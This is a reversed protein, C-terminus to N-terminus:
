EQPRAPAPQAASVDLALLRAANGGLIAELDDKRLGCAGLAERQETRRDHRWGAPFASSGTAFLVREPGFVGLVREFVDALTQPRPQTRLWDDLSATDVRVNDCQAGAMLAERLFGGGLGSLVFALRPHAGAAPVLALPDALRPDFVRSLGLVDRLRARTVGCRVVVAAGTGELAALVAGAEPGALDYRDVAPSLVIGRFGRGRVLEAAHEAAGGATPDVAAFPVLRGASLEAAAVLGDLEEPCGACSVAADVGHRDLEAIWRAAHDDLVPPPLEFGTRRAARALKEEPTGALPSRSALAQFYPRSLFQTQFDIVKM